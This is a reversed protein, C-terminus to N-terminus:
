EGHSHGLSHFGSFDADRVSLIWGRRVTKGIKVETKSSPNWSSDEVQFLNNSDFIAFKPNIINRTRSYNMEKSAQAMFAEIENIKRPLARTMWEVGTPTVLLDDEIRVGINKYKEYAPRIKALFAKNEPTDPLYNLADERIYIGPENTFIMGAQLPTEYDGVDHVNMGLWHGLGHMFWLKYQPMDIPKGQYLIQYTADPATILGLKTLGEKIARDAAQRADRFIAGPKVTKAAAEQADYVTQYIEAQEKTFRGNAPYTRTVDATYHDYEAGVDMLLLNGSKVEGQSEVYHLTTANPGCGVISPYGWYDANRRRFTYEVEAQVEYEYKAKGVMAMSRMQAETTIDIAHQMLKIELPSKILRLDDFIRRGNEIKYGAISKSFENEKRYEAKGDGDTESEPLLLYVTAPATSVNEGSKSNFPKKDKVTQLFADLESADVTTKVGSIRAADDRSYMKGDWTERVPNRNPLFLIEKADAGNKMLVLTANRQKLNTLYYLNNEQRYMFDVDGAYYKPEASFLILMSDSSMAELVKARRKSLEAQREADSFKPALPTIRIAKPENKVDFNFAAGNLSVTLITLIALINKMM